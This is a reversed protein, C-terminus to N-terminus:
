SFCSAEVHSKEQYINHPEAKNEVNSCQLEGV